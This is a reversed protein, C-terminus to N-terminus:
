ETCSSARRQRRSAWALARCRSSDDCPRAGACPPAEHSLTPCPSPEGSFPEACPRSAYCPTAFSIRTDISSEAQRKPPTDRIMRKMSTVRGDLRSGCRAVNASATPTTSPAPAHLRASIELSCGQEVSGSQAARPASKAPATHRSPRHTAPGEVPPADPLAPVPPEAPEDPDDPDLPAAPVDPEDPDDPEPPELPEAPDPPDDPAPPDAPEPPEDPDDPDPPEAPVLSAPPSTVIGGSHLQM